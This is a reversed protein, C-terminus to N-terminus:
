PIKGVELAKDLIKKFDDNYKQVQPIKGNLEKRENIAEKATQSLLNNLNKKAQAHPIKNLQKKLSNQINTPSNPIVGPYSKKSYEQIMVSAAKKQISEVADQTQQGYKTAVNNTVQKFDFNVGVKKAEKQGLNGYQDIYKQVLDETKQHIMNIEPKDLQKPKDIVGANAMIAAFALGLYFKM